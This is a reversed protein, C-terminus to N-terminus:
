TDLVFRWRAGGADRLADDLDGLQTLLLDAGPVGAGQELVLRKFGAVWGRGADADFWRTPPLDAPPEAGMAELEAAAEQPSHGVFDDPSAVGARRALRNIRRHPPSLEVVSADGAGEVVLLYAVGM